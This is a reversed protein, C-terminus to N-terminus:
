GGRPTPGAGHRRGPGALFRVAALCTTLSRAVRPPVPVSPKSVHSAAQHLGAARKVVSTAALSRPAMLVFLVRNVEDKVDVEWVADPGYVEQFARVTQAYVPASRAAVNVVLVGDSHMVGRASELFSRAVFANPPFSM